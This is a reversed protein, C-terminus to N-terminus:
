QVQMDSLDSPYSGLKWPKEIDSSFAGNVSLQNEDSWFSSHTESDPAFVEDNLTVKHLMEDSLSFVYPDCYTDLKGLQECFYVFRGDRSVEAEIIEAYFGPTNTSGIVASGLSSKNATLLVSKLSTVASLGESTVAVSLITEEPEVEQKEMAVFEPEENLIQQSMYLQNIGFAIFATTFGIVYSTIVIAVKEHRTGELM